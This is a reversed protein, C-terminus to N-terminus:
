TGSIGPKVAPLTVSRPRNVLYSLFALVLVFGALILGSNM